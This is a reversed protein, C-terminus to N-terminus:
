QVGHKSRMTVDSIYSTVLIVFCDAFRVWANLAFAFCRHQVCCMQTRVKNVRCVCLLRCGLLGGTFAYILWLSVTM